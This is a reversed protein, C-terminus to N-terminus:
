GGDIALRAQAHTEHVEPRREVVYIAHARDDLLYAPTQSSASGVYCKLM